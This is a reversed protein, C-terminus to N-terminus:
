AARWPLSARVRFGGGARPGADFQGGLREVRERMGALGHGGGTRDPSAGVGDDTVEVTLWEPEWGLRIRARASSGAHRLVNTLSEQLVRYAAHDVPGALGRDTLHGHSGQGALDGGHQRDAPDGDVEVELGAARVAALLDPLRDLGADSGATAPEGDARLVGLTTRMEALAAKGTQRIATLADRVRDPERDILHLATGSQVTITAIAHAVTDHLERAIRLREEVVRREADRRREEEALRLRQRVEEVYARRSRVLAGLLMAVAVLAVQPLFVAVADLPPTGKRMVVVHGASLFAVPVPLAWWLSGALVADYLPVLLVLSPPFGPYGWAYFLLLVAAVAYLVAVPYQRRWLLPVAMAVGLTYAFWDRPVAGAERGTVIAIEAVTAVAAVVTLDILWRRVASVTRLRSL